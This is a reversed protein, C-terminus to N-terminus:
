LSAVFLIDSVIIWVDRKLTQYVFLQKTITLRIKM